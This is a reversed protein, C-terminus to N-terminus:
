DYEEMGENDPELNFWPCEPDDKEQECVKYSGLGGRMIGYGLHLHSGCLPCAEIDHVKGCDPCDADKEIMVPPPHITDATKGCLIMRTTM